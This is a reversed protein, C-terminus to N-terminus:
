STHESLFIILSVYKHIFTANMSKTIFGLSIELNVMALCSIQVSVEKEGIFVFMMM